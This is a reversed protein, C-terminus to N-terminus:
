LLVEKEWYRHALKSPHVRWCFVVHFLFVLRLIPFMKKFEIFRHYILLSNDHWFHLSSMIPTLLSPFQKQGSPVQM